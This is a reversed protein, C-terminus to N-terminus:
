MNIEHWHSIKKLLNVFFKPECQATVPLCWYQKDLFKECKVADKETMIVLTNDGFEIDKPKFAHHDPFPHEIVQFGLTRLQDFFRQPNGIGAIAHIPKNTIAPQLTQTRDQLNYIERPILQMSWENDIGTGQTVIFDVSKLRSIPERLPGAPLCLGNGFRRIGDVVAIEITRGLAYHQLGDDSLILDCPNEKLLLKVADVRKRAIVVPCGTARAILLPEDGVWQPDSTPQVSTPTNNSQGGYGRSVIGPKFGQMKFFHALAIILPTKGTGGATINGVVIVPISFYTTKKLGVRYCLKKCNIGLRYLASFPTLLYLLPHKKYWAETLKM